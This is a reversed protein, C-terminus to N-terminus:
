VPEREAAMLREIAEAWDRFGHERRFRDLKDLTAHPVPLWVGDAYYRAMMGRWLAVPLRYRADGTWHVPAIQLNGGSDRHFVSGRFLFSLPVDGERIGHFFKTAAVNFDYSCPVPLQFETHSVFAPVQAHVHTWLFSKLTEGWRERQGFLDTLADAELEGYRRRAPEIRIQCQLAVADVAMGSSSAAIRLGFMLTPQVAQSAITAGTIHFDLDPM